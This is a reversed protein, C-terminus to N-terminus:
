VAQAIKAPLQVPDEGMQEIRIHPDRAFRFGNRGKRKAEYMAGDASSILEDASAQRADTCMTIGVSTSIDVTVGPLVFPRTLTRCIDQAVRSCANATAIGQSLIIFEDGALRSVVDNQRVVKKLRKGVEILLADGADHGYTDNVTKFGDLDLFFLAFPVAERKGHEVARALEEHLARRNPLGTLPDLMAKALLVNEALKRDTIDQSMIYFGAVKDGRIDPIYTASWIREHQPWYRVNDYTVREGTLAREFYPRLEEFLSSGLTEELSKGRLSGPEVGFVDRYVDNNFQYRLNADVHGILIPLNNTITQLTERSQTLEATRETVRQELEHQYDRLFKESDKRASIDQIVSIFHLPQGTEDRVLAVSLDVWVITGDRRRYRKELSYTKRRGFLLDAVLQLDMALDAEVTIEPFTLSLLQEASYGTIECLKSNVDIFRGSLDVIAKGTPTQRFITEFRSASLALNRRDFEQVARGVRATEKHLLEREVTRALDHLASIASGSLTRPKTDIVCLTGLVLGEASRLPIGAYFRIFPAGTVLPNDAFRADELADEVLLIKDIDLAHACFALDRSTECVDLGVRSKFWQRYEDVLSILAIPVQLMEAAIRTIRDFAEDAPTDLVDLGQLLRLRAAENAPVPAKSM